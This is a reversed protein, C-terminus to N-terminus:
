LPNATFLSYVGLIYPTKPQLSVDLRESGLASPTADADAIQLLNGAADFLAIGADVNLSRNIFVSTVANEAADDTAFRYYTATTFAPVQFQTVTDGLPTQPAPGTYLSPIAGRISATLMRRSELAEVACAAARSVTAQRKKSSSKLNKSSFPQMIRWLSDRSNGRRVAM